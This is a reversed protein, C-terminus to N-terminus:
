PYQLRKLGAAAAGNLSLQKLSDAKITLSGVTMDNLDVSGYWGLQINMSDINGVDFASIKNFKGGKFYLQKINLQTLVVECDDSAELLLSPQSFHFLMLHSNGNVVRIFQVPPCNVKVVEGEGTSVYLTDGEQSYRVKSSDFGPYNLSYKDSAYVRLPADYDTKLVIAKFPRLAVVKDEWRGFRLKQGDGNIGKKFYAWLVVDSALMLLGVIGVFVLLLKISTKM